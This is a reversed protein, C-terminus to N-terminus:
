KAGEELTPKELGIKPAAAQLLVVLLESEARLKEADFRHLNPINVAAQLQKIADSAASGLKPDAREIADAFMVRYALAIGAANSRMDDLSTGSLRSEGGDAKNGGVEFALRVVGNLLRGPELNIHALQDKVDALHAILAGTEADADAGSAGFLVAEIGHFGHEANPWADIAQDLAPVFGSTFVESREWGGRAAIWAKRAGALDGAALCQRLERAGALAQGIDDILYHRYTEAAADLPTASSHRPALSLAAIAALVLSRKGFKVTKMVSRKM